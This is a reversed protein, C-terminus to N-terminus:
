HKRNASVLFPNTFSVPAICKFKRGGYILQISLFTSNLTVNFTTTITVKDNWGAISTIKSGNPAFTKNRDVFSKATTQQLNIVISAPIQNRKIKSVVSHFYCIEVEKHVEQSIDVKGTRIQHQVFGVRRFLSKTRSSEEFKINSLNCEPHKNVLVM